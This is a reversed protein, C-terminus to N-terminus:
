KKKRVRHVLNEIEKKKLSNKKISFLRTPYDLEYLVAEKDEEKSEELEFPGEEGSSYFELKRWYIAQDEEDLIFSLDLGAKPPPQRKVMSIFCALKVAKKLQHETELYQLEENWTM